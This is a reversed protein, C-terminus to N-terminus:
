KTGKWTELEIEIISIKERLRFLGILVSEIRGSNEIFDFVSRGDICEDRIRNKESVTKTKGEWHRYQCLDCEHYENLSDEGCNPCHSYIIVIQISAPEPYRNGILARGWYIGGKPHEGLLKHCDECLTQLDCDPSEWVEGAYKKHHVHLTKESAGCAVCSFNDRSM